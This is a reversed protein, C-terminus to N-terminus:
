TSYLFDIHMLETLQSTVEAWQGKLMFHLQETMSLGGPEKMWPIKWAITSSHTAM